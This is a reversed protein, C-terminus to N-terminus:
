LLLHIGARAFEGDYPWMATRNEMFESFSPHANNTSSQCDLEINKSAECFDLYEMPLTGFLM